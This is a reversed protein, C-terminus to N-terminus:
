RALCTDRRLASPFSTPDLFDAANQLAACSYHRRCLTQPSRKPPRHQRWIRSLATLWASGSLAPFIDRGEENSVSIRFAEGPILAV